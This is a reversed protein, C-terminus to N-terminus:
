IYLDIALPSRQLQRVARLDVPVASRTIEHFFDSGLVVEFRWPPRRQILERALRLPSPYDSTVLGSGSLTPHLGLSSKWDLRTSLLRRLQNELRHATGRPGSITSLGLNRALDNPARGLVIKPNKTRVAETTLYVLLLRPYSGYPLGVHRPASMRLSYRGNAREFQHSEPRLAPHAGKPRRWQV